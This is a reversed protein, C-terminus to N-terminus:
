LIESVGLDSIIDALSSISLNEFEQINFTREGYTKNERTDTCKKYIKLKVKEERDKYYKCSLNSLEIFNIDHQNMHGVAVRITDVENDITIKNKNDMQRSITKLYGYFKTRKQGGCLEYAHVMKEGLEYGISTMLTEMSTGIPNRIYRYQKPKGDTDVHIDERDVNNEINDNDFVSLISSKIKSASSYKGTDDCMICFTKNEPLLQHESVVAKSGDETEILVKSGRSALVRIYIAM